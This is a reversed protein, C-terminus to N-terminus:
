WSCMIGGGSTGSGGRNPGLTEESSQLLHVFQTSEGQHRATKRAYYRRSAARWAERQLTQSEDPLESILTKRRKDMLSIPQLFRSDTIHPFPISRSPTAQQRAVKRAYYRRSAARWAARKLRQAEEPLESMPVSKKKNRLLHSVIVCILLYATWWASLIWIGSRPNTKFPLKVLKLDQSTSSRKYFTTFFGKTAGCSHTFNSTNVQLYTQAFVIDSVDWFMKLTLFICKACVRIFGVGACVGPM